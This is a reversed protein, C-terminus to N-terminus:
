ARGTLQEEVDSKVTYWSIFQLLDSRYQAFVDERLDIIDAFQNHAFRFESERELSDAKKSDLASEAISKAIEEADALSKILLCLRGRCDEMMVENELSQLADQKSELAPPISLGQEGISATNLEIYQALAAAAWTDFVGSLDSEQSTLLRHAHRIHGAAEEFNGGTMMVWQVGCLVPYGVNHVVVEIGFIHIVNFFYIFPTDATPPASLTRVPRKNMLVFQKGAPYARTFSRAADPSAQIQRM